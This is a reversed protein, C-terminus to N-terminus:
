RLKSSLKHRLFSDCENILYRQFARTAAIPHGLNEFVVVTHSPGKAIESLCGTLERLFAVDSSSSANAAAASRASLSSCDSCWGLFSIISNKSFQISSM